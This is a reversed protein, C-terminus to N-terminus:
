AARMGDAMRGIYDKFRENYEDPLLKLQHEFIEIILKSIMIPDLGNVYLSNWYYVSGGPEYTIALKSTRKDFEVLFYDEHYRVVKRNRFRHTSDLGYMVNSIIHNLNYLFWDSSERM